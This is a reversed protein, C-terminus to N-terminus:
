LVSLECSEKDCFADAVMYALHLDLYDQYPENSLQGPTGILATVLAKSEVINTPDPKGALKFSQFVGLCQIGMKLMDYLHAGAVYKIDM